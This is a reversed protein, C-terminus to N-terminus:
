EERRMLGSRFYWDMQRWFAERTGGHRGIKGAVEEAWTLM